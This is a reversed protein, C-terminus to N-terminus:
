QQSIFYISCGRLGLGSKQFNHFFLLNRHFTNGSLNGLRKDYYSSLIGCTAYTGLEKRFSLHIAKHNGGSQTVGVVFALQVKGPDLVAAIAHSKNVAYHISLAKHHKARLDVGDIGVVCNVSIKHIQNGGGSIVGM